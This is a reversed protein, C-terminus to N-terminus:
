AHQLQAVADAALEATRFAFLWRAQEL